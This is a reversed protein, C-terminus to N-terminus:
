NRYKAHCQKCSKELAQFQRSAGDPNDAKLLDELKQAASESEALWTKFETSFDGTLHRGSERLAEKLLL